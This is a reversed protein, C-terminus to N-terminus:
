VAEFVDLMVSKGTAVVIREITKIPKLRRDQIGWATPVTLRVRGFATPDTEIPHPFRYMKRHRIIGDGYSGFNNTSSNRHEAAIVQDCNFFDGHALSITHVFRLDAGSGTYLFFLVFASSGGKQGSPITSNFDIDKRCARGRVLALSKVEYSEPERAIETIEALADGVWFDPYTNKGQQKYPLGASELRDRFWDQPFDVKDDADRPIMPINREAAEAMELFIRVANTAHKPDATLKPSTKRRTTMADGLAIRGEPTQFIARIEDSDRGVQRGIEEYSLKEAKLRAIANLDMANLDM